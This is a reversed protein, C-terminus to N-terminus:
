ERASKRGPPYFNFSHVESTQLTVYERVIDSFQSKLERLLGRFELSSPVDLNLELDWRGLSKSYFWINPH